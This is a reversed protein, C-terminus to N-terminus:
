SGYSTNVDVVMLTCITHPFFSQPILIPSDSMLNALSCTKISIILLSHSIVTKVQFHTIKFQFDYISMPTKERSITKLDYDYKM